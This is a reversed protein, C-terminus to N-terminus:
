DRECLQSVVLRGDPLQFLGEPEVIPDGPQWPAPSDAGGAANDDALPRIEGTPFPAIFTTSPREPLGGSGSVIFSSGQETRAICSGAILQQTDVVTTPLEALSNQIFSVDPITIIGSIAGTANIDVRGNGDLPSAEIDSLFPQYNEGFFAPTNLTINGGQGDEAFALIDSDGFALISSARLIIDGGRGEGLLVQSVIDSDEELRIQDAGIIIQGGSSRASATTITANNAQLIDQLNVLINGAMGNELSRANLNAGNTLRLSGATIEVNGGNGIAGSDVSSFAASPFVRGDPSSGTGDFVAARDIRLIVNGSNGAGTTNAVLQSGELVELSEAEIEINGGNGVAGPLVNSLAASRFGGASSGTFIIAGEVNLILNGASGRGLTSTALQSGNFMELRGANVEINGGDGVGEQGVGSFIGSANDFVINESVNLIVDNANGNGSTENRFQSNELVQLTRSRVHVNGGNGIANELVSSGVIIENRFVTEGRIDLVINGADGNGGSSAQLQSSNDVVLSGSRIEINGGNGFGGQELSSSALSVWKRNDSIGDFVVADTIKLTINGTSGDGGSAAVLQAGNLVELSEATIEINGGDGTANEGVRSNIGSPQEIPSIAGDLILMRSIALSINGANGRGATDSSVIAGDSIELTNAEISIDGANGEAGSAINTFVGSAVFVGDNSTGRFIAAEDIDLTVSSSNGNGFSGASIQAGNLLELSNAEIHVVSSEGETRADQEVNSFVGSALQREDFRIGVGDFIARGDVVLLVSGANGNGRTAGVVQGGNMAELAGARLRINGGNGTGGAEVTNLIGSPIQGNPSTGDLIVLGDIYLEINGVNGTGTVTTALQAGGTVALSNAEIVIDGGDGTGLIFYSVNSRDAINIKELASLEINGPQTSSNTSGADIGTLVLSGSLLEINRATIAVNGGGSLFTNAIARNSLVVNARPTNPPFSLNGDGTLEVVGIGGVAGIEVRGDRATLGSLVNNGDITVNGGLLILNEGDSVQLGRIPFGSSITDSETVSQSVINGSEIQNFLFASPSVTLLDTSLSTEIASFIGQDGFQISDATTAVFSGEIALSSNAGFLIGNPNLLFLNAAGDVGLTGFINSSNNGSVRGFINEVNIPNAFYLQQGNAVNFELFSHFLNQGRQAGGNILDLPLGDADVTDVVESSESGLTQDPTVLSQAHGPSALALLSVWFAIEATALKLWGVHYFTAAM